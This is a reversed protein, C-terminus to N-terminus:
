TEQTKDTLVAPGDVRSIRAPRTTEFRAYGTKRSIAPILNPVVDVANACNGAQDAIQNSKQAQCDTPAQTAKRLDTISVAPLCPSFL